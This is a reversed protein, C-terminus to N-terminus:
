HLWINVLFYITTKGDSLSLCWCPGGELKHIEVLECGGVRRPLSFLPIHRLVPYGLLLFITYNHLTVQVTCMRTAPPVVCLGKILICSHGVVFKFVEEAASSPVGVYLLFVCPLPLPALRCQIVHNCPIVMEWRLDGLRVRFGVLFEVMILDPGLEGMHVEGSQGVWCPGRWRIEGLSNVINEEFSVYVVAFYSDLFPDLSIQCFVRRAL